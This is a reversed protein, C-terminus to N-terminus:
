QPSLFISIGLFFYNNFLLSTWAAKADSLFAYSTSIVGILILGLSLLHTSKSIKYM